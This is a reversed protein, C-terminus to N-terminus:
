VFAGGPHLEDLGLTEAATIYKPITQQKLSHTVVGEHVWPPVGRTAKVELIALTDAMLLRDPDHLLSQMLEEYPYLGLLHTDFTIRLDREILGEYAERQYYVQASRRLRYRELLTHFASTMVPNDFEWTAPDLHRPTFDDIQVRYKRIRDHLRHKIEAIATVGEKFRPGYVRLRVKNRLGIGDHKERVFSLTPSDYYQSLVLSRCHEDTFPAPVLYRQWRALLQAKTAHHLLFKWETRFARM